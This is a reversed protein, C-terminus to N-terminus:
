VLVSLYQVTSSFPQRCEGGNSCLSFIPNELILCVRGQKEKIYDCRLLSFFFFDRHFETTKKLISYLRLRRKQARRLPLANGLALPRSALPAAPGPRSGGRRGEGGGGAPTLMAVRYRRRRRDLQAAAGSWSGPVPPPSALSPFFALILAKRAAEKGQHRLPMTYTSLYINTNQPDAVGTTSLPSLLDEQRDLLSFLTEHEHSM